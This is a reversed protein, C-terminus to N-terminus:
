RAEKLHKIEWVGRCVYHDGFQFFEKDNLVDFNHASVRRDRDYSCFGDIPGHGTNEWSKLEDAMSTFNGGHAWDQKSDNDAMNFDGNVFGLNEPDNAVDKLWADIKEAYLRSWKWNPEGSRRTMTPYHVAGQNIRGVLPNIHSFSLTAMVSDHGNGHVDKTSAVFVSGREVSRPKIIARDVAIWNDRAFHIIHDYDEAFEMLLRQNQNPGADPGAETGTKIPYKQGSAFLDKIDARQQKATDRFELSSHQMRLKTISMFAGKGSRQTALLENSSLGPFNDKTVSIFPM